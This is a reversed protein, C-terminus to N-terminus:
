LVVLIAVFLYLDSPNPGVVPRAFIPWKGLSTYIAPLIPLIFVASITPYVCCFISKVLESLLTVNCKLRYCGSCDNTALNGM